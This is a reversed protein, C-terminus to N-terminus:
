TWNRHDALSDMPNELCSYQLPNGHRGGPSRGLAPISRRDGASCVTEKDDSSFSFEETYRGAQGLIFIGGTPSCTEQLHMRMSFYESHIAGVWYLFAGTYFSGRPPFDRVSFCTGRHICGLCLACRLSTSSLIFITRKATVESLFIGRICFVDKFLHSFPYVGIYFVDGSPNCKLPPRCSFSLHM